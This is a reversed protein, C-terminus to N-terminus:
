EPPVESQEMSKNEYFEKNVQSTPKFNIKLRTRIIGHSYLTNQLWKEMDYSHPWNGGGNDLPVKVTVEPKGAKDAAVIQSIIYNDVSYMTSSSCGTNNWRTVPLYNFNIIVFTALLLLLPIVMRVAAFNQLLYVLSFDVMLLFLMWVPWTADVRTAYQSGASIYAVFLYLLVILFSCFTIVMLSLSKDLYLESFGKKRVAYFAALFIIAVFILLVIKNQLKTLNIFNILTKNVVNGKEAVSLSSARGGHMDFLVTILWLVLLCLYMWTNRLINKVKFNHNVLTIVIETCLMIFSYAATIINFQTSSFISFYIVIILLSQKVTSYSKFKLSINGEAEMYLVLATNLLGPIIYFFVCSLDGAWLLDYSPSNVHKFLLFLSIFLFIESVISVNVSAKIRKRMLHYFAILMSLIFISYILSCVLTISFVYHGCLPYVIYAAIYGSLPMLIEPLVRTPNWTGWQPISLRMSGIYRWDDGDFPVLPFIKCTFIVLSLFLLVQIILFKRKYKKGNLM